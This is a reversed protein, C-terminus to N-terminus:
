HQCCQSRSGNAEYKNRGEARRLTGNHNRLVAKGLLLLAMLMLLLLFLGAEFMVGAIIVDICSSFLM